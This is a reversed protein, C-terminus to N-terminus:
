HTLPHQVHVSDRNDPNFGSILDQVESPLSFASENPHFSFFETRPLLVLTWKLLEFTTICSAPSHSGDKNESPLAIGFTFSLIDHHVQVPIFIFKLIVKNGSSGANCDVRIIRNLPLNQSLLFVSM